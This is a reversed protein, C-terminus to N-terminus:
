VEKLLEPNDHINGVIEGEFYKVNELFIIEEIDNPNKLFFMANDFAVFYNEREDTGSYRKCSLVDGEFIKKGNIDTLGTFQCVTDKHVAKGHMRIHTGLDHRMAFVQLPLIFVFNHNEVDCLTGEIWEGNDKRKGKFLINRM